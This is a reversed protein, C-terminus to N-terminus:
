DAAAPMQSQAAYDRIFGMMKTINKKLETSGGNLENTEENLYLAKSLEIQLSHRNRLPDGYRRLIDVGKYPNNISVRYGLRELFYKLEKVFCSSCTTGDRTGLVIDVQTGTSPRFLTGNTVYASTSPMSHCDIHWVQGFQDWTEDLLNKLVAHYPLYYTDIRHRIERLSLKRDYVPQGPRVLKRILGHGASSRGNKAIEGPWPEALMSPDIDELARNLDIYTRPFMARLLPAGQAPAEAFLTDVGTDEARALLNFPCSYGFDDPYLSGSHPSNYVVPGSVEAPRTLTYIGPEYQDM